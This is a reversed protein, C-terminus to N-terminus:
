MGVIFICVLVQYNQESVSSNLSQLPIGVFMYIPGMHASDPCKAWESGVHAGYLSQGYSVWIPGM